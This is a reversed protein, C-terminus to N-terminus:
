ALHPPTVAKESLSLSRQKLWRRVRIVLVALVFLLNAGFVWWGANSAASPNRIQAALKTDHSMRFRENGNADWSVQGEPTVETVSFGKPPLFTFLKEDIVANNSYKLVQLQQSRIKEGLNDFEISKWHQPINSQADFRSQSVLRMLTGDASFMRTASIQLPRIQQIEIEIRGAGFLSRWLTPVIAVVIPDGDVIRISLEDAEGNIFDEVLAADATERNPVGTRGSPSKSSTTVARIATLLEPELGGIRWLDLFQHAPGFKLTSQARKFESDYTFSRM